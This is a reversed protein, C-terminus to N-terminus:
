IGSLDGLLGSEEREKRLRRWRQEAQRKLEETRLRWVAPPAPATSIGFWQLLSTHPSKAPFVGLNKSIRTGAPRGVLDEMFSQFDSDDMNDVVQRSSEALIRLFPLARAFEQHAKPRVVDVESVVQGTEPDIKFKRNFASVVNPDSFRGGKPFAKSGTAESMLYTLIPHFGELEFLGQLPNAGGARLRLSDARVAADAIKSTENARFPVSSQLWAPLEEQETVDNAVTALHALITMRGPHQAPLKVALAHINKQWQWFPFIRRMVAREEPRMNGYDFYWKNVHDIAEAHLEASGAVIDIRRVMEDTLEGNIISQKMDVMGRLGQRVSERAADEAGAPSGQRRAIEQSTSPRDFAPQSGDALKRLDAGVRGIDETGSRKAIQMAMDDLFSADASSIGLRKAEKTMKDVKDIFAARRWFTETIENLQDFSRGIAGSTPSALESVFSGASKALTKTGEYAGRLGPQDFAKLIAGQRVISNFADTAMKGVGRSPIEPNDLMDAIMGSSVGDIEDIWRSEKQLAKYLSAPNMGSTLAMLVNTINNNIIFRPSRLWQSKYFTMVDDHIAVAAGLVGGPKIHQNALKLMKDAVPKPILMVTNPDPKTLARIFSEDAERLSFFEPFEKPFQRRMANALATPFGQSQNVNSIVDNMVARNFFGAQLHEAGTWLVFQTKVGSEGSIDVGEELLERMDDITMRGGHHAEGQANVLVGRRSEGDPVEDLDDFVAKWVYEAEIEQHAALRRINAVGERTQYHLVDEPDWIRDKHLLAEGTRVRQNGPRTVQGASGVDGGVTTPAVTQVELESALARQSEGVQTKRLPHDDPLNDVTIAEVRGGTPKGEGRLLARTNGFFQTSRLNQEFIASMHTPAVFFANPAVAEVRGGLLKFKKGQDVVTTVVGGQSQILEVENVNILRDRDIGLDQLLKDVRATQEARGKKGKVKGRIGYGLEAALESLQVNQIQSPSMLGLTVLVMQDDVDLQRLADITAQMAPTIEQGSITMNQSIPNAQGGGGAVNHDNLARAWGARADDALAQAQELVEKDVLKDPLAHLRRLEDQATLSRGYAQELVLRTGSSQELPATFAADAAASEPSLRGELMDQTEVAKTRTGELRRVESQQSRDLRDSSIGQAERHLRAEGEFDEFGLDTAGGTQRAASEPSPRAARGRVSPHPVRVDVQEREILADWLNQSAASVKAAEEAPIDGLLRRTTQSNPPPTRQFERVLDIDDFAIIGREIILGTGMDIRAPRIVQGHRTGEVADFLLSGVLPVELAMGHMKGEGIAVKEAHESFWRSKTNPNKRGELTWQDGYYTPVVEMVEGPADTDWRGRFESNVFANKSQANRSSAFRFNNMQQPVAAGQKELRRYNDRYGMVRQRARELLEMPSLAPPNAWELVARHKAADGKWVNVAIRSMTEHIGHRGSIFDRRQKPNWVKAEPVLRGFVDALADLPDSDMVTKPIKAEAAVEKLFGQIRHLVGARESLAIVAEPSIIPVDIERGAAVGADVVQQFRRGNELEAQWLAEWKGDAGLEAARELTDVARYTSIDEMSVAVPYRQWDDALSPINTLDVDGLESIDGTFREVPISEETVKRAAQAAQEAEDLIKRAAAERAEAADV